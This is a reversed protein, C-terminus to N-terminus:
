LLIVIITLLRYRCVFCSVMKPITLKAVCITCTHIQSLYRWLLHHQLIYLIPQFKGRRKNLYLILDDTDLWKFYNIIIKKVSIRYHTFKLTLFLVVLISLSLSLSNLRQLLAFETKIKEICTVIHLSTQVTGTFTCENDVIVDNLHFIGNITVNLLLCGFRVHYCSNKVGLEILVHACNM